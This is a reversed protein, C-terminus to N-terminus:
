AHRPRLARALLASLAASTGATSMSIPATFIDATGLLHLARLRHRLGHIESCAAAALSDGRRRTWGERALMDTLGVTLEEYSLPGSVLTLLLAGERASVGFSPHPDDQAGILASTGIHWRVADDAAMARGAPTLVLATGSRRIAGMERTALTRLTHVPMVSLEQRRRNPALDQWGFRDVADDIVAPSIYNRSTLKIGDTARGLLWDLTPLESSVPPELLRPVIARALSAREGRASNVWDDIRESSIRTLWTGGNADPQTLWRDTLSARTTLWGSTGQKVEGVAVALELAAACAEFASREASGMLTGWALLDTDPPTAAATEIAEACASAGQAPDREYATIIQQTQKSTCARAYRDLGALELLKGLSKAVGLQAHPPVPWQSPLVHWLFEQLRLLSISGLGEDGTLWRLAAKADDAAAPDQRTLAALAQAETMM